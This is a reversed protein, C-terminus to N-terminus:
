IIVTYQKFSIDLSKPVRKKSGLYTPLVHMSIYTGVLGRIPYQQLELCTCHSASNVDKETM